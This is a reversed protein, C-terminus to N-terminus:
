KASKELQVFCEQSEEATVEAIFTWLSQRTTFCKIDDNLENTVKNGTVHYINKPTYIEITAGCSVLMFTVLILTIIKKM